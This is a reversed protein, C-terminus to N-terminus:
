NVSSKLILHEYTQACCCLALQTSMVTYYDRRFHTINLFKICFRVFEPM